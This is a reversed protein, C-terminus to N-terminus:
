FLHLWYHLELELNFSVCMTELSVSIHTQGSLNSFCFTPTVPSPLLLWAPMQEPPTSSSCLVERDLMGTKGVKQEAKVHGWTERYVQSFTVLLNWTKAQINPNKSIEPSSSENMANLSLKMWLRMAHVFDLGTRQWFSIGNAQLETGSLTEM